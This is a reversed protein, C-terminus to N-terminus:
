LHLEGRLVKGSANKPLSAIQRIYKPLKYRALRNALFDRVAEPAVTGAYFLAPVQGWHADAVPIVACEELGDLEYLTDELEKPYINEGGSIIIDKRRNLLYLFGDEDIYGIDDTNLGEPSLPKKGLYGTMLMPSQIWIDGVGHSDQNKVTITVGPLPKGVAALKHPYALINFTASQAFSETMGYTKYVPLRKELCRKILPQPIFEGGLLIMRLGHAPVAEIIRQLITPVLSIMNVKGAGIVKLVPGEEYKRMITAATGNYLTRLIISLGSVHFMPLVVLWNDEAEVGIVEASAAVHARIQGWRIPVSKFRGTTASTNMIVAIAKDDPQWCFSTNAPSNPMVTKGGAATLADRKEAAKSSRTPVTIHLSHLGMVSIDEIGDWPVDGAVTLLSTIELTQMQDAVEGATLHTNITLVEKGCLLAAFLTVAMAVSNEARLAVCQQGDLAEQLYNAVAITAEYVDGYTWENLFLASPREVAWRRLWEM